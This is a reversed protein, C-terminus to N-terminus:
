HISRGVVPLDIAFAAGGGTDAATLRGGNEEIIRYPEFVADGADALGPGSDQITLRMWSRQEPVGEPAAAEELRFLLTGEGEMAEKGNKVLNGLVQRLQGPDVRWIFERPWGEWRCIVHTRELYFRAVEGLLRHLDDGRLDRPRPRPLKAYMSFEDALRELNAAEELVTGVCSHVTADESRGKIRHMALTIPTLPNKIEHALRRAVGQWAALREAKRLERRGARLQTTMSNFAEVLAGLEAPADAEIRQDLDGAAVRQTGRVLQQLPRAVSRAILHSLLLSLLLLFLALLMLALVLHSQLLKRYIFSLQRMGASGQTIDELLIALQPDLPVELVAYRTPDGPLPFGAALRPIGPGPVRFATALDPGTRGRLYDPLAKKDGGTTVWGLEPDWRWVRRRTGEPLSLSPDAGAQRALRQVNSKEAALVRRALELGAETSRELGPSELMALHECGRQWDLLLVGVAPLFMMPFLIFFLRRQLTIAETPLISDVRLVWALM